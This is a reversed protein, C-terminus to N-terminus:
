RVRDLILDITIPTNNNLVSYVITVYIGNEDPSPSVTVDNIIARPEYLMVTDMIMQRAFSLSHSDMGEFLLTHLHTGLKPQFPREFLSTKLLNFIAQKIADTGTAAMVDKSGPHVQLNSKFDSYLAQSTVQTYKESFNLAM